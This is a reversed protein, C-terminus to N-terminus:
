SACVMFHMPSPREHPVRPPNAALSRRAQHRLTVQSLRGQALNLRRLLRVAPRQRYHLFGDSPSEAPHPVPGTEVLRFDNHDLAERWQATTRFAQYDNTKRPSDVAYELLVLHGGPRLLRHVLALTEHLEHADLIHDLVTVSLAMDVPPVAGALDGRDRIFTFRPDRIGPEVFPDHGYVRFGLSLLLRSFDGTGCGFDLAAPADGGIEFRSLVTTVIQLRELQDYAYLVPDGWGTHGHRAARDRWFHSLDPM